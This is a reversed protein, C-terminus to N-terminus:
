VAAPAIGDVQVAVQSSRAPPVVVQQGQDVLHRFSGPEQDNSESADSLNTPRELSSHASSIAMQVTGSTTRKEM